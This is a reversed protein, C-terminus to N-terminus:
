DNTYEGQLKWIDSNPYVEEIIKYDKIIDHVDTKDTFQVIYETYIPTYSNPIIDFGCLIGYILCFVSIALFILTIIKESDATCAVTIISLIATTFAGVILLFMALSNLEYKITEELIIVNEM